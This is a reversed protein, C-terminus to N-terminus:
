RPPTDGSLDYCHTRDANRAACVGCGTTRICLEPDALARCPDAPLAVRTVGGRMVGGSLGGVLYVSGAAVAAAM